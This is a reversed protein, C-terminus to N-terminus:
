SNINIIDTEKINYIIGNESKCYITKEENKKNTIEIITGDRTYGAFIFEVNINVDILERNVLKKKEERSLKLIEAEDIKKEKKKNKSGKPRGM